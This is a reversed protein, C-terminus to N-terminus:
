EGQSTATYTKRSLIFLNGNQSLNIGMNSLSQRLDDFSGSYDIKFQVKRRTMAVTETKEVNRLTNIKKEVDLWDSLNQFVYLVDVAGRPLEEVVGKEYLYQRLVNDQITIKLSAMYRVDSSKESLVTAEKIFYAVQEDNLANLVALGEPSVFQSAVNNLAERNAQAMAKEKAVAANVDSVDVSVVTGYDEAAKAPLTFFISMMLFFLGRYMM